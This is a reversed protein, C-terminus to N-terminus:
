GQPLTDLRTRDGSAVLVIEDVADFTGQLEYAATGSSSPGIPLRPLRFLHDGPRCVGPEATFAARYGANRAALVAREDVYPARGFPYSMVDCFSDGVLSQLEARPLSLEEELAVDSASALSLHRHGHAGFTVLPDKGLSVLEESTLMRDLMGVPPRGGTRSFLEELRRELREEDLAALSLLLRRAASARRPASDTRLVRDIWPVALPLPAVRDIVGRVQEDWLTHAGDLHGTTVFFTVPVGLHRCVPLALEASLSFSEDFTLIAMGEELRDGSSLADVAETMHVFRLTGMADTIERELENATMASGARRDPHRRGEETDPVLRRVRLVAVGAGRSAVSLNHLAKRTFPVRAIQRLAGRLAARSAKRFM